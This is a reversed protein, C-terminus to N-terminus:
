QPSTSVPYIKEQPPTAVWSCLSPFSPPTQSTCAHQSGPGARPCCSFHIFGSNGTEFFVQSLQSCWVHATCAGGSCFNPVPQGPFPPWHLEGQRLHLLHLLCVQKPIFLRSTQNLMEKLLVLCIKRHSTQLRQWLACLMQRLNTWSKGAGKVSLGFHFPQAYETVEAPPPKSASHPRIRKSLM